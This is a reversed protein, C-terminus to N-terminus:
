IANMQIYSTVIGYKSVLHEGYCIATDALVDVRKDVSLEKTITSFQRM